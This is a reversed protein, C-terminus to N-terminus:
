LVVKDNAPAVSSAMNPSNFAANLTIRGFPCSAWLYSEVIALAFGAQTPVRKGARGQEPLHHMQVLWPSGKTQISLGPGQCGSARVPSSRTELISPAVQQLTLGLCGGFIGRELEPLPFSFHPAAPFLVLLPPGVPSWAGHRTRPGCRRM